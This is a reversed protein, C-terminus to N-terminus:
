RRILIIIAICVWVVNVAVSPYAGFHLTNIILFISGGLNMLQYAVSNGAVKRTSVLVYAALLTVAGIWGIINVLLTTPNMPIM